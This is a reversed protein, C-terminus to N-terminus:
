SSIVFYVNGIVLYCTAIKATFAFLFYHVTCLFSCFPTCLLFPQGFRNCVMWQCSQTIYDKMTTQKINRVAMISLQFFQLIVIFSWKLFRLINKLLAFTCEHEAGEGQENKNAKWHDRGGGGWHVYKKFSGKSALFYWLYFQSKILRKLTTMNLQYCGRPNRKIVTWQAIIPIRDTVLSPFISTCTLHICSFNSHTLDGKKNWTRSGMDSEAVKKNIGSGRGEKGHLMSKSYGMKLHAVSTYLNVLQVQM